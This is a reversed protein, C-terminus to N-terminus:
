FVAGTLGFLFEVPKPPNGPAMLVETNEDLHPSVLCKIGVVQKSRVVMGYRTKDRFWCPGSHKKRGGGSLPTFLV